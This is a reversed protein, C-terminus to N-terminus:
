NLTTFTSVLLAIRHRLLIGTDRILGNGAHTFRALWTEAFVRFLPLPSPPASNCEWGRPVVVPPCVTTASQRQWRWDPGARRRLNDRRNFRAGILQTGAHHHRHYFSAADFGTFRRHVVKERLADTPQDNVIRSSSRSAMATSAAQALTGAKNRSTESWVGM